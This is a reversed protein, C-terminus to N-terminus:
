NTSTTGVGQHAFFQAGLVELGQISKYGVTWNAASGNPNIPNEGGSHYESFLENTSYKTAAPFYRVRIAPENGGGQIKVMKDLPIYYADKVINTSAFMTPQDLIPLVSYNLEYGGYSVKEVDFDIEKGNIVLRASTVGSSGLNKWLKDFARITASSGLVTYKKPARNATLADLTSDIDSLAVTNASAVATAVGYSSIYSDLGRTTQFNGGGNGLTDTTPDAQFVTADTFSTASMEGGIMQANIHGNLLIMKELHDKIVFKAQGEYQVELASANAVDTIVSVERFIQVKNYYKTAGFVVNKPNVSNEGSADSIIALSGTVNGTSAGTGLATNTTSVIVITDNPNTTTTVSTVLATQKNTLIVIDNPRVIGNANGATLTITAKNYTTGSGDTSQTGYAITAGSTNIAKFVTENVFTNYTPQKTPIKRDLMFLVDTLQADNAIDTVNKNIERTLYMADIGSIFLENANSLKAAM